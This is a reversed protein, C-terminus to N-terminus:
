TRDGSLIMTRVVLVVLLLAVVVLVAHAGWRAVFGPAPAPAPSEPVPLTEVPAATEEPPEAAADQVNAMKKAQKAWEVEATPYYRGNIDSFGAELAEKRRRQDRDKTREAEVKVSREDVTKYSPAPLWPSDVEVM